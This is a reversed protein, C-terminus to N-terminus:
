REYTYDVADTEHAISVAVNELKLEAVGKIKGFETAQVQLNKFHLNKMPRESNGQIYFVASLPLDQSDAHINEIRIDSVQTLGAAGEVGETIKQWYDPTTGTLKDDVGYSYEAFWDLEFRFPYTVAKMTLDHAFINRIYGGRNKASKIRLGIGTGDFTTNAIEVGDIGGSVESGVTIGSGHGLQCNKITVNRTPQHLAEAERGRGSKLYINDDNCTVQCSEIVVDQASDIDIGDTSPGLGNEIM